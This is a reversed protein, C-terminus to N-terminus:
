LWNSGLACMELGLVFENNLHSVIPVTYPEFLKLSRGVKATSTLYTYFFCTPTSHKESRM